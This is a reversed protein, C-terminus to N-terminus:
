TANASLSNAGIALAQTRSRPSAVRRAKAFLSGYRTEKFFSQVRFALGRRANIFYCAPILLMSKNM